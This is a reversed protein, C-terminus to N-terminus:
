SRPPPATPSSITDPQASANASVVRSHARVPRPRDEVYRVVTHAIRDHLGMRRNDVLIPLYGAFLPIAAAIMGVVRVLSRKPRLRADEVTTVQIGLVRMGPTQGTLSWFVSFYITFATWWVIAAIGVTEVEIDLSFDGFAEVILAVVLGAVFLVGQLIALDVAFAVARTVAGAYPQTATVPPAVASL